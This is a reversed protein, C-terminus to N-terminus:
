EIHSRYIIKEIEDDTVYKSYYDEDTQELGFTSAKDQDETGIYLQGETDQYLDFIAGEYRAEQYLAYLEDLDDRAVRKFYLTHASTNTTQAEFGKELAEADETVLVVENSIIEVVKYTDGQYTAYKGDIM